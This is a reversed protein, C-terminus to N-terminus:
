RRWLAGERTETSTLSLVYHYLLVLFARKIFIYIYSRESLSKAVDEYKLARCSSALFNGVSHGIKAISPLSLVVVCIVSGEQGEILSCLAFLFFTSVPAAFRVM